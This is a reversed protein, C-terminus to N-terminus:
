TEGIDLAAGCVCVCVRERWVGVRVLWGVLGCEGREEAGGGGGAGGWGCWVGEWGKGWDGVGMRWRVGEALGTWVRRLDEWLKVGVLELVRVGCGGKGAFFFGGIWRDLM